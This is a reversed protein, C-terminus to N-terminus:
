WAVQHADDWEEVPCALEVRRETHHWEVLVLELLEDVETAHLHELLPYEAGEVDLKLVLRDAHQNADSVGQVFEALDFCAVDNGDEFVRSATGDRTFGLRGNYVWAASSSLFCVTGNRETTDTTFLFPDFGFLVDPHFRDVLMAVSDMGHPACGLDVVIM